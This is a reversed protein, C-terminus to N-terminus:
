RFDSPYASRELSPGRFAEPRNANWALLDLRWTQEHTPDSSTLATAGLEFFERAKFRRFWTRLEARFRSYLMSESSATIIGRCDPATSIAFLALWAAACSKGVGHGSAVALRIAQGPTKLGDRVQELLWLQWPEPGTSRVLEGEGWAFAEQVFKVPDHSVSALWEGIEDPGEAESVRQQM